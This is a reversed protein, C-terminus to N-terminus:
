PCRLTPKDFSFTMGSPTITVHAVEHASLHSGDSGVLAVAFIATATFTQSTVNEGDWFTSHGSFSPQNPDNPIFKFTGTATFTEHSTGDALTTVHEVANVTQTSTGTAGSCPNVDPESFTFGFVHDTSNTAGAGLASSAAVLVLIALALFLALKRM